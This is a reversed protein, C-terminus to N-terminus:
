NGNSGSSKPRMESDCPPKLSVFLMLLLSKCKLDVSILDLVFNHTIIIINRCDAQLREMEFLLKYQNGYITVVM